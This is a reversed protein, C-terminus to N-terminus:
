IAVAHPNIGFYNKVIFIRVFIKKRYIEAKDPHHSHLIKLLYLCDNIKHRRRIRPDFAQIKKM